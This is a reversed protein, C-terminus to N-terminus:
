WVDHSSMVCCWGQSTQSAFASMRGDLDLPGTTVRMGILDEFWGWSTTMLGFVVLFCLEDLLLLGLELEVFDGDLELVVDGM